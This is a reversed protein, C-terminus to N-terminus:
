NKEELLADSEGLSDSLAHLRSLRERLEQDGDEIQEPNSAVLVLKSKVEALAAEAQRLGAHIESLRQDLAAYREVELKRADISHQLTEREDDSAATQLQNQLDLIDSEATAKGQLAHRLDEASVVLKVAQELVAASEELAEKGIVRITTSDKHEEVLTEIEAHLKRLPAMYVRYKPNFEDGATDAAPLGERRMAGYAIVAVGLVGILLGLPLNMTGVVAGVVVLGLGISLLRKM